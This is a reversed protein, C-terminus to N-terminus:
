VRSNVSGGIISVLIIFTQKDKQMLQSCVTDVFTNATFRGSTIAELTVYAYNLFDEMKFRHKLPFQKFGTIRWIHMHDTPPYKEIFQVKYQDSLM